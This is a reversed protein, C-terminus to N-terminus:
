YSIVKLEKINEFHKLNRTIIKHVGNTLLIGAIICDFRGINKGERRLKWFIEAGKKSAEMEHSLVTIDQFFEDYYKEEEKHVKNSLDLGFMIEQYNILTTVVQEQSKNLLNKIKIEGKFIDIVATTDLAIM